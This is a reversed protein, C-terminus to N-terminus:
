RRHRPRHRGERREHHAGQGAARVPHRVADRVVDAHRNPGTADLRVSFAFPDPLARMPADADRLERRQLRRAALLVADFGLSGEIVPRRLVGQAGGGVLDVELHGEHQRLSRGHVRPERRASLRGRELHRVGVDADRAHESGRRRRSARLRRRRLNRHRYGLRRENWKLASDDGSSGCGLPAFCVLLLTTSIAVGLCTLRGHAFRSGSGPSVGTAEQIRFVRTRPDMAFPCTTGADDLAMRPRTAGVRKSKRSSYRHM